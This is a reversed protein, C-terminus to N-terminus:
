LRRRIVYVVVGLLFFLGPVQWLLLAGVRDLQQPALQLARVRYENPAIDLLVSREVMWNCVNIALDGFMPFGVNNCFVGSAVVARGPPAGAVLNDVEISMGLVFQGLRTNKPARNDPRGDEGPQALWGFTGTALLPEVRVGAPLSRERLDRASQMEYSRGSALRKTV